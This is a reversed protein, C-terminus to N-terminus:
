GEKKLSKRRERSVDRSKPPTIGDKDMSKRRRSEHRSKSRKRRGEDKKQSVDMSEDRTSSSKKKKKKYEREEHKPLHEEASRDRSVSDPAAVRALPSLVSLMPTEAQSSPSPSLLITPVCTHEAQSRPSRLNLHEHMEVPSSPSLLNEPPPFPVLGAESPRMMSSLFSRKRQVSPTRHGSDVDSTPAANSSSAALGDFTTQRSFSSTDSRRATTRITDEDEKRDMTSLMGTNSDFNSSLSEKTSCSMTLKRPLFVEKVEKDQVGRTAKNLKRMEPSMINGAKEVVTKRPLMSSAVTKWLRKFDRKRPRARECSNKQGFPVFSPDMDTLISEYYEFGARFIDQEEVLDAFKHKVAALKQELDDIQNKAEELSMNAKDIKGQKEMADQFEARQIARTLPQFRKSKQKLLRQIRQDRKFIDEDRAQLEGLFRTHYFRAKSVMLRLEEVDADEYELFLEEPPVVPSRQAVPAQPASDINVFYPVLSSRKTSSLRYGDYLDGTAIGLRSDVEKIYEQLNVDSNPGWISYEGCSSSSPSDIM